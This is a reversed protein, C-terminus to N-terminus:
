AFTKSAKLHSISNQPPFLISMILRLVKLENQDNIRSKVLEGKFLSAIGYSNLDATIFCSRDCHNFVCAKCDSRGPNVDQRHSKLCTVRSNGEGSIPIVHSGIESNDLSLYSAEYLHSPVADPM